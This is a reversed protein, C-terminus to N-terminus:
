ENGGLMLCRIVADAEQILVQQITKWGNDFSWTIYIGHYHHIASDCSHPDHILTGLGKGGLTQSIIMSFLRKKLKLKQIEWRNRNHLTQFITKFSKEKRNYKVKLNYRKTHCIIDDYMLRRM